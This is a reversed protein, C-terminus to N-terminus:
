LDYTTTVVKQIIRFCGENLAFFMYDDLPYVYGSEKATKRCMHGCSDMFEAGIPVEEFSVTDPALVYRTTENM